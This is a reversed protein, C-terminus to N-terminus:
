VGIGCAVKLLPQRMAALYRVENIFSRKADAWVTVSFVAAHRGTPRRAGRRSRCPRTGVGQPRSCAGATASPLCFNRARSRRQPLNTCATACPPSSGALGCVTATHRVAGTDTAAGRYGCTRRVRYGLAARYLRRLSCQLGDHLPTKSRDGGSRDEDGTYRRGRHSLVFRGGVAVRAGM